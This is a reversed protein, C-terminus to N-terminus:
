QVVLAPPSIRGGIEEYFFSTRISLQATVNKITPSMAPKSPRVPIAPAAVCIAHIKNTTKMYQEQDAQDGAAAPGDDSKM